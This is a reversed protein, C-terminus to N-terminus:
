FLENIVVVEVGVSRGDRGTRSGWSCTGWKFERMENGSLRPSRSSCKTGLRSWRGAKERGQGTKEGDKMTGLTYIYINNHRTRREIM